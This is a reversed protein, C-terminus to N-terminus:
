QSYRGFLQAYKNFLRETDSANVTFIVWDDSVYYDNTNLDKLYLSSFEKRSVILAKELMQDPNKRAEQVLGQHFGYHDLTRGLFKTFIIKPHSAQLVRASVLCTPDVFLYKIGSNAISSDTELIEVAKKIIIANEQLARIHSAAMLYQTRTREFWLQPISMSRHEANFYVQVDPLVYPYIFFLM